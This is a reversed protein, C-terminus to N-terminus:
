PCAATKLVAKGTIVVNGTGSITVSDCTLEYRTGDGDLTVAGVEGPPELTLDDITEDGVLVVTSNGGILAEDNCSHPYCPTGCFISDPDWNGPVNYNNNQAGTWEFGTALAALPSLGAAAVMSRAKKRFRM